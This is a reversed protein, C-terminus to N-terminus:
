LDLTLSAGRARGVCVMMSRGAARDDETLVTDRHEPEGGLVRTECSGCYGQECDYAVAGTVEKLVEGLRRDAPVPVTVGTRALTVSFATDHATDFVPGDEPATFLETHLRDALGAAACATRVAAIMPGPGCCYVAVGPGAAALAGAVDPHGSTDQPVVTLRDGLLATLEPLFAMSGATRGGYVMSVPRGAAVLERAMALVPTVGIGGAVLLHEQADLLPFHNRPGRVTFRAGPVAVEHVEVSGGRGGPERLVAVTWTPAAPDGCLSYQRRRGSPLALELHAGPAWAPLTGGGAPALTLELVDTAAERVQQVVVEATVATPAAAGPTGWRPGPTFLVPIADWGSQNGVTPYAVLGEEVVQFDPIRTLVQRVMEGFMARALHAGACRHAGIGFSLHRQPNRDLVVSEPDPFVAPDHNAAVWPLLVRDGSRMPCGGVETDQVVTRAMSQSPAFVRLFEETAVDLLDPSEVLRRREEPHRSLWVLTSGTLSTTTDVGGATLLYVVSVLEDDTFPRGEPHTAAVLASVVDDRPAVRRDVLLERVRAELYGLGEIGRMARDSGAVAAFIDHVPGALREWDDVPFGLWDLTVAAPLPNTLDRVLDGSGAEVFADVVRTTHAAIMPKLREVAEATLLPNILERYPAQRPPDLEIPLQELGGGFPIVFSVGRDGAPARESSFTADDRAIRVVDDYRTTYWFGEHADTWGVPCRERHERYYGVPDANAAPGHHDFDHTTPTSMEHEPPSSTPHATNGPRAM